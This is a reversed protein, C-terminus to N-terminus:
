IVGFLATTKFEKKVIRRKKRIKWVGTKKLVMNEYHKMRRIDGTM